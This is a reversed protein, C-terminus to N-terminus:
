RKEFKDFDRLCEGLLPTQPPLSPYLLRQADLPFYKSLM